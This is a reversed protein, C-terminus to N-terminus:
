GNDKGKQEGAADLIERIQRKLKAPLDQDLYEALKPINKKYKQYYENNMSDFYDGNGRRIRLREIMGGSLRLAFKVDRVLRLIEKHEKTQKDKKESPKGVKTEEAVSDNIDSQIYKREIKNSSRKEGKGVTWGKKARKKYEAVM